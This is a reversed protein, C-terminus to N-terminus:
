KVIAPVASCLRVGSSLPEFEKCKDSNMIVDMWDQFFSIRTFQGSDILGRSVLGLGVLEGNQRYLLPGGSDGGRAIDPGCVNLAPDFNTDPYGEPVDTCQTDPPIPGQAHLLQDPRGGSETNGFGALIVTDGVQEKVEKDLKLFRDSQAAKELKLLAIDYQGSSFADKANASYLQWGKYDKPIYVEAIAIKELSIVEPDYQEMGIQVFHPLQGRICHAATLVWQSAVLAGGCIHEGGEQTITSFFPYTGSPVPEGGVIREEANVTLLFSLVGLGVIYKSM